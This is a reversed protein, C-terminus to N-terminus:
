GEILKRHQVKGALHQAISCELHATSSPSSLLHVTEMLGNYHYLQDNFGKIGAEVIYGYSFPLFGQEWISQMLQAVRQYM